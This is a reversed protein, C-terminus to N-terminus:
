VSPRVVAGPMPYVDFTAMTSSIAPDDEGLARVEDESNARVVALGWAGDPDAVPSYVVVRGADVHRQWYEFHEAMTAAEAPTMDMMFSPRPPTLKYLFYSEIDTGAVDTM